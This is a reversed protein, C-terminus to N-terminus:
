RAVPTAVIKDIDFQAECQMFRCIDESQLKVVVRSIYINHLAECGDPIAIWKRGAPDMIALDYPNQPPYCAVLNSVFVRRHEFLALDEKQSAGQLLLWADQQLYKRTLDFLWKQVCSGYKWSLICSKDNGTSVTSAIWWLGPPSSPDNTELKLTEPQLQINWAKKHRKRM